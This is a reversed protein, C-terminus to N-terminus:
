IRREPAVGKPKVYAEEVGDCGLLQQMVGKVAAPEVHAVFYAALELDSTEPFLPELSVGLDAAFDRVRRHKPAGLQAAEPAVKVVVEVQQADESRSVPKDPSAM